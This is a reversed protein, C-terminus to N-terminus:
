ATCVVNLGDMGATLYRLGMTSSTLRSSSQNGKWRWMCMDTSGVKFTLHFYFNGNGTPYISSIGEVTANLRYLGSVPIRVNAIFGISEEEFEM